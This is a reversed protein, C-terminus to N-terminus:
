SNLRQIAQEFSRLDDNVKGFPPQWDTNPLFLMCDPLVVAFVDAVSEGKIFSFCNRQRTYSGCRVDVTLCNLLEDAVVLDCPSSNSVARFVAYGQGMLVTAAVLEGIAGSTTSSVPKHQKVGNWREETKLVRHRSRHFAKACADSSYRATKQRNAPISKGCHKCSRENM